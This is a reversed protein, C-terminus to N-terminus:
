TSQSTESARCSKSEFTFVDTESSRSSKGPWFIAVNNPNETKLIFGPIRVWLQLQLTLEPWSYSCDLVNSILEFIHRQVDSCLLDLLSHFRQSIDFLWTKLKPSVLTLGGM